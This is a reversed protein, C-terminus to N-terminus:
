RTGGRPDTAVHWIGALAIVILVLVLAVAPGTRALDPRVVALVGLAVAVAIAATLLRTM